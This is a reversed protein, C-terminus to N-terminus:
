FRCVIKGFISHEISRPLPSSPIFELHQDDLLNQGILNFEIIENPRWGLKVDLGWYAPVRPEPLEDVYRVVFGLEIKGPLDIMSQILFQHNPDNSEV